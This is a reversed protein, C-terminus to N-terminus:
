NLNEYYVSANFVSDIRLQSSDIHGEIKIQGSNLWIQQQYVKDLEHYRVNYCDINRKKLTFKLTDNYPIKFIETQSLDFVDVKDIKHNGDNTIIIQINTQGFSQLCVRSIDSDIKITEYLRIQDVPKKNKM